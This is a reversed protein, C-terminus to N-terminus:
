QQEGPWYNVSFEAIVADPDSVPSPEKKFVGLANGNEYTMETLYGDKIMTVVHEWAETGPKVYGSGLYVYDMDAYILFEVLAETSATLLYNGGSGEIDTYSQANCPFSLLEPQDGFILVRNQPDEALIEWIERNGYHYLREKEEQRHDYFGGHALSVPSLGLTGSWNSVATVTINFLAFPVLMKMILRALFRNQIKGLIIVALISLLAYLLMFYNGDVQWLLYLAALSAAGNTLLICVLCFLPKKERGRLKRMEVVLPVLLLLLFIVLFSTGWAIRVHAMDEGVPAALVGFLRKLIHKLGSISFLAGGNSPLDDFRFPYRVSFGLRSWISYFVSTVPLGTLLWTRLWVLVWILAMMLASPFLSGRIQFRQRRVALLYLGATGAAITSFVVATPKLVMTMMFANAAAVLFSSKQRKAYLLLFYIMVLQFFATSADTKASVAMNMIGPICSLVAMCLVGLRRNVFLGTIRGSVLLIGGVMWFQFALFFSHSPLGSLPFLLIELGKPYTYVVNVSGLNEYIGNGNNLIYESRLSYHLSDYDICINIRGAQLLLMAFILAFLAAVIMSIPQEQELARSIGTTEPIGTSGATERKKRLIRMELLAAILLVAIRTYAIEGIGALSMLCFLLIMGGCGATFEALWSVLRESSLRKGRSMVELLFRGFGALVLLYLGSVLVPLFAQHIWLFVSATVGMLVARWLLKKRLRLELFFAAFLVATEALLGLTEPERLRDGDIGIVYIKGIGILLASVAAMAMFTLVAWERKKM